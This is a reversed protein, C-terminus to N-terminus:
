HAVEGIQGRAAGSSASPVCDLPFLGGPRSRSGGVGGSVSASSKSISRNGVCRGHPKIIVAGVAERRTRAVTDPARGSHLGGLNFSIKKKSAHGALSSGTQKRDAEAGVVGWRGHKANGWDISDDMIGERGFGNEPLGTQSLILDSYVWKQRIIGIFYALCRIERGFGGDRWPLQFRM